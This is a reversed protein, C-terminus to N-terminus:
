DTDPTFRLSAQSSSLLETQIDTAPGPVTVNLVQQPIATIKKLTSYDPMGNCESLLGRITEIVLSAMCPRGIAHMETIFDKAAQYDGNGNFAALLFNHILDVKETSNYYHSGSWDVFSRFADRNVIRQLIQVLRRDVLFKDNGIETQQWRSFSLEFLYVISFHYFDYKDLSILLSTLVQQYRYKSFDDQSVVKRSGEGEERQVVYERAKEFSGEFAHARAVLADVEEEVDLSSKSANEKIVETLHLIRPGWPILADKEAQIFQNDISNALERTFAILVKEQMDRFHDCAQLCGFWHSLDASKPVIASDLLMRYKALTDTRTPTRAKSKRNNNNNACKKTRAMNNPFLKRAGAFHVFVLLSTVAQRLSCIELASEM